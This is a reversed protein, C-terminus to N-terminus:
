LMILRLALIPAQRCVMNMWSPKQLIVIGWVQEQLRFAQLPIIGFRVTIKGQSYQLYADKFYAFRRLLSYQSVDDPSGIDIQIKSSFYKSMKFEYGLYARTVEFAAPNSGENIGFHLNSYVLGIPKGDAFPNKPTEQGLAAHGLLFFLLGSFAFSFYKLM